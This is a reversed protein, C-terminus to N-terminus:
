ERRGADLSWRDPGAVALVILGALALALGCLIETAGIVPGMVEPFPLGIGLRLPIIALSLTESHARPALPPTPM